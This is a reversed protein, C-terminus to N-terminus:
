FHFFNRVTSGVFIPDDKQKKSNFESASTKRKLNPVGPKEADVPPKDEKEAEPKEADVPTKDVFNEDLDPTQVM